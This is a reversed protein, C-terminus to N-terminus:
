RLFSLTSTWYVTLPPLRPEDVPSSMSTGGPRRTRRGEPAPTLSQRRGSPRALRWSPRRRRARARRHLRRAPRSRFDNGPRTASRTSRGCSSRTRAYGRAPLQARDTAGAAGQAVAPGAPDPICTSAARRLGCRSSGSEVWDRKRCASEVVQEARSPSKLRNVDSFNHHSWHVDVRPTFGALGELVDSAHLRRWESPSSAASTGCTTPGSLRLDGPALIATGASLSRLDRDASRIVMQVVARAAKEQPWYLLNPENCIELADVWAGDPNGGKGSSGPGPATPGEPNRDVGQEYRASLYGVFWGWPGDPSLDIPCSRSPCAEQAGVPDRGRAGNSWTPFSMFSRDPDVGVGDDNAARLQRDLRRLWSQGSPAKNLQSWSTPSRRHRM